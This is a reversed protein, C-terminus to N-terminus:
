RQRLLLATVEVITDLITSIIKCMLVIVGIRIYNYYSAHVTFIPFLYLSVKDLHYIPIHPQEFLFTAHSQLTLRSIYHIYKVM